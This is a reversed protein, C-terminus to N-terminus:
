RGLHTRVEDLLERTINGRRAVNTETGARRDREQGLTHGWLEVAAGVLTPLDVGVSRAARRDVLGAQDLPDGSNLEDHLRQGESETVPEGRFAGPLDAVERGNVLLPADHALLEPLSVPRGRVAGLALALSLLTEVKAEVRGGELDSVRGVSWPLGHRKAERSVQELHAGAEQRIRRANGGIIRRLDTEVADVRAAHEPTLRTM